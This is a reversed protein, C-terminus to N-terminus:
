SRGCHPVIHAMLFSRFGRLGMVPGSSSRPKTRRAMKMTTMGKTKLRSPIPDACLDAGRM